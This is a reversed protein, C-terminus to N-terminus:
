KWLWRKFNKDQQASPKKVRVLKLKSAPKSGVEIETEILKGRRFLSLKALSGPKFDKLREEFDKSTVKHGNLALVEDRVQLGARSAPSGAEVSRVQFLADKMAVTAGLWQEKEEKERKFELGYVSLAESYDHDKTGQTYDRWFASLDAGAVEECLAEFGREGFGPKPWGFREMALKMADDLSKEGKTLARIKADLAFGAQAGRSYYSVASNVFNEDAQYLKTWALWSSEELSMIKRGPRADEKEIIEAYAALLTEDSIIGARACWLKEYYQTLGEMVWLAKTHQERAYNFPGLIQPRIRKVNWVHFYEHAVLRVFNEYDDKKRYKFSDWACVCSNLHELGGGADPFSHIVFLYYDYPVGGFLKPETECLKKIDATIKKKDWNGWGVYAVDHKVGFAKFSHVEHTGIEFISDGLIDYDAALWTNKAGKVPPLGTAVQWGKPPEISVVYRAAQPLGEEREVYPLLNTGLFFGHQDDLHPTRVSFEDAYLTFAVTASDRAGHIRFRQKDLIEVELDGRGDRAKFASVNKAFDRVKYSGPTWAPFALTVDGHLGSLAIEVEFNHSAPHPMRVTYHAALAAARSSESRRAARTPHEEAM